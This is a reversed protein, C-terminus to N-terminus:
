PQQEQYFFDQHYTFYGSTEWPIYNGSPKFLNLSPIQAQWIQFFFELFM